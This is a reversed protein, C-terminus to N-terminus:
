GLAATNGLRRPRNRSTARLIPGLTRRPMGRTPRPIFIQRALRFRSQFSTMLMTFRFFPTHVLYLRHQIALMSITPYRQRPLHSGPTLQPNLWILAHIISSLHVPIAHVYQPVRFIAIRRASSGSQRAATPQSILMRHSFLFTVMGGSHRVAAM